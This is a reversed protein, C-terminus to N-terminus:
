VNVVILVIHVSISKSMEREANAKGGMAALCSNLFLHLSSMLFYVKLLWTTSM